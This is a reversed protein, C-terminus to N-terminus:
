ELMTEKHKEIGLNYLLTDHGVYMYTCCQDEEHM